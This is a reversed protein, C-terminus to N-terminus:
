KATEEAMMRDIVNCMEEASAREEQPSMALYERRFDKAFKLRRAAPYTQIDRLGRLIETVSEGTKHPLNM